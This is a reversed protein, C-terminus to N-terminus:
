VPSAWSEWPQLSFIFFFPDTQQWYMRWLWQCDMGVWAGGTKVTEGMQRTALVVAVWVAGLIAMEMIAGPSFFLMLAFVIGTLILYQLHFYVLNAKIRGLVNLM